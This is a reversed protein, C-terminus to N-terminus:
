TNASKQFDSPMPVSMWQTPQPELWEQEGVAYWRGEGQGRVGEGWWCWMPLEWEPHWCFTPLQNRPASEITQWM